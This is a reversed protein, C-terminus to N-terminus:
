LVDLGLVVRVAGHSALDMRNEELALVHIQTSYSGFKLRSFVAM